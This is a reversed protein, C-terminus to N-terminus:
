KRKADRELIQAYEKDMGESYYKDIDTKMTKEIEARRSNHREQADSSSFVVDGFANRGQDSAWQVFGPIDGLRRGDPLRAETWADGIDGASSMFRKALTLNGKYEDRSWADRLADEAEESAKTDAQTQAEAARESMDVYWEAAMEVFAPPANKGHAFETFSSLVPKDADVLRKTVPEPLVYGTPDAPIGQEKRWEAMAKEDKPDPMDRKIKGSRITKQAEELAKVVGDLSGYRKLLKLRDENDGAALERWNDPLAAGKDEGGKDATDGTGKDADTTGTDVKDGGEGGETGKDSGADKDAGGADNNQTDAKATDDVVEKIDAIAETM